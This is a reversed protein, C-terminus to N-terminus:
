YNTKYNWSMRLWKLGSPPSSAKWSVCLYLWNTVNHLKRWNTEWKSLEKSSNLFNKIIHIQACVYTYYKLGFSFIPNGTAPTIPPQLWRTHRSSFEPGKCSCCMSKVESDDRWLWKGPNENYNSRLFAQGVFLSEDEKEPEKNVITFLTGWTCRDANLVGTVKGM